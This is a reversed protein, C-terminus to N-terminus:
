GLLNLWATAYPKTQIALRKIKPDYRASYDLLRLAMLVVPLREVRRMFDDMSQEALARLNRNVGNSCDTFLYTPHQEARKYIEGIEAWKFLIELTSTVIATLGVSMCSELMEVFAHRPVISAYHR